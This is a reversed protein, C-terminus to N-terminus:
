PRTGRSTAPPTSTRPATAAVLYALGLPSTEADKRSNHWFEVIARRVADSHRALRGWRLVSRAYKDTGGTGGVTNASAPGPRIVNTLLTKGFAALDDRTFVIGQEFCLVAFDVNISAHSIDEFSEDRGELPPHYAWVFAGSDATRVRHRFFRALRTVHDRHRRTAAAEDIWIWARALANQMNLPARTNTALIWLHGEDPAPGERYEDEHVAVSERAADLFREAYHAYKSALAPDRRVVAAFQALPAVIMGTHVAWAYRRGETYKTSSWAKVVRGRVEDRRGHRDDRAALAWDALRVFRDAYGPDRTAELVEALGQLVYAQGWAIGGQDNSGPGALAQAIAPDVMADFQRLAERPDSAPEASAAQVALMVTLTWLVHASTRTTM